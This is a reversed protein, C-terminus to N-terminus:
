LERIYLTFSTSNNGDADRLQIYKKNPTYVCYDGARTSSSYQQITTRVVNLVMTSDLYSIAYTKGKTLEINIYGEGDYDAVSTYSTFETSLSGELDRIAQVVDVGNAYFATSHVGDADITAIINDNADVIHFEEKDSVIEERMNAIAQKNANVDNVLGTIEGANEDVYKVLNQIDTITKGGEPDSAVILTNIRDDVETETMFATDAEDKNYYNSLDVKGIKEDILSEISKGSAGLLLDLVHLGAADFEAIKYGDKDVIVFTKGDDSADIAAQEAATKHRNDDGIHTDIKNEIDTIGQDTGATNANWRKRDEDSVHRKSATSHADELHEKLLLSGGLSVEKANVTTTHIGDADIQAIKYGNKDVIYFTNDDDEVDSLDADPVANADAPKYGLAAEISEATIVIDDADAPTYGLAKKIEEATVDERIPKLKGDKTKIYVSM